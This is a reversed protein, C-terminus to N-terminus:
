LNESELGKLSPIEVAAMTESSSNQAERNKLYDVSARTLGIAADKGNVSAQLRAFNKLRRAPSYLQNSPRGTIKDKTVIMTTRGAEPGLESIIRSVSRLFQKNKM